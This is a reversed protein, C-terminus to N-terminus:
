RHNNAATQVLRSLPLAPAFTRTSLLLDHSNLDRSRLPRHTDPLLLFEVDFEGLFGPSDEFTDFPFDRALEDLPVVAVVLRTHFHRRKRLGILLLRWNLEIPHIATVPAHDLGGTNERRAALVSVLRDRRRDIDL